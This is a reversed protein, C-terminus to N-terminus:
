ADVASGLAGLGDCEIELRSLDKGTGLLRVTEHLCLTLTGHLLIGCDPDRGDLSRDLLDELFESAAAGLDDTDTDTSLLM